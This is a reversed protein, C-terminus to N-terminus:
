STNQAARALTSYKLALAKKKKIAGLNKKKKRIPTLHKEMHTFFTKKGKLV